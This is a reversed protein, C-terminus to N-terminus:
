WLDERPTNRLDLCSKAKSGQGVRCYGYTQTFFSLWPVGSNSTSFWLKQTMGVLHTAAAHLLVVLSPTLRCKNGVSGFKLLIQVVLTFVVRAFHSPGVWYEARHLSWKTYSTHTCRYVAASCCPQNAQHGSTMRRWRKGTGKYVCPFKSRIWLFPSMKWYGFLCGFISVFHKRKQGCPLYM